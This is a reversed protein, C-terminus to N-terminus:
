KRFFTLHCSPWGELQPPTFGLESRTSLGSKLLGLPPAASFGITALTSATSELVTSNLSLNAAAGKRGDIAEAHHRTAALCMRALYPSRLAGSAWTPVPGNLNLFSWRPLTM